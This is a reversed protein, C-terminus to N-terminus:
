KDSGKDEDDSEEDKYPDGFEEELKERNEEANEIAALADLINYFADETGRPPHMMLLVIESLRSIYEIDPDEAENCRELIDQVRDAVCFMRDESIHSTLNSIVALAKYTCGEGEEGISVLRKAAKLRERVPYMNMRAQVLQRKIKMEGTLQDAYSITEMFMKFDEDTIEYKKKM